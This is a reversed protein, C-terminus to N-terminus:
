TRKSMQHIGKISDIEIQPDHIQEFYKFVVPQTWQVNVEKSKPLNYSKYSNKRLGATNFDYLHGIKCMALYWILFLDYLFFFDILNSM